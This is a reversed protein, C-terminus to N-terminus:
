QGHITGAFINGYCSRLANCVEDFSTYKEEIAEWEFGNDFPEGHQHGDSRVRIKESLCHLCIDQFEGELLIKVTPARYEEYRSWVIQSKSNDLHPVVWDLFHEYESGYNKIESNILVRGTDFDFTSNLGVDGCCQAYLASYGRSTKFFPHVPWKYNTDWKTEKHNILQNVAAKEELADERLTLDAHFETYMGM